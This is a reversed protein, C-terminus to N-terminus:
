FFRSSPVPGPSWMRDRPGTAPWADGLTRVFAVLDAVTDDPATEADRAASASSAATAPTAATAPAAPASAAPTAPASAAAVIDEAVAEAPRSDPEVRRVDEGMRAVMRAGWPEILHQHLLGVFDAAVPPPSTWCSAHEVLLSGPTRQRLAELTPPEVSRLDYAIVLANDVDSEWPRTPLELLRGAALGLIQSARDPLLGVSSARHVERLRILTTACNDPSDQIFAYRGNMGEDLGYPSVHALVSANLVFHWSRLSTADLPGVLEARRLMGTLRQEARAWDSDPTSLRAAWHGAKAVDGSMMANFALLYRGPWDPLVAENAELLAVADSYRYCDEYATALENIIPLTGPAQELAAVLLPVAIASIGREICAYGLDYLNPPSDPNSVVARAAAVMDDFGTVAAARELVAALRPLPLRDAQSRLAGIAAGLDGHSLHEDIRALVEDVDPSGHPASDAPVDTM